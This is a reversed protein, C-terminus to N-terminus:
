AIPQAYIKAAHSYHFAYHMAGLYSTHCAYNDPSPVRIRGINLAM